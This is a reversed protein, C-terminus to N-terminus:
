NEILIAIKEDKGVLSYTGPQLQISHPEDTPLLHWETVKTATSNYIAIDQEVSVKVTVKQAGNSEKDGCTVYVTAAPYIIPEPEPDQEPQVTTTITVKGGGSAKTYLRMYVFGDEDIVRPEWTSMTAASVTKPNGNLLSVVTLLNSASTNAVNIDCTDAIFVQCQSTKSFQFTIDGNKWTPYHLRFYRKETTNAKITITTDKPPLLITKDKEICPSPSWKLPTLTTEESCWIKIYLYNATTKKWLTELESAYLEYWHGEDSPYFQYSAIAQQPLFEPYTGIYMKFVHDTPTTFKTDTTWTLPIAYTKNLTDSAVVETAKNYTLLTAGGAPPAMPVKEVKLIGSGTSYWKAFFMGAESKNNEADEVYHKLQIRTLKFTDKPQLEKINVMRSDKNLDPDLPDFDCITAVVLTLADTGDWVFRVSDKQWQVYPVIVHRSADNPSVRVTDGLHMFKHGDMCNGFEDPSMTLQGGCSFVVKVYVNVNYDIGQALLMDRYFQAFEVHYRAKGHEDFSLTPVQKYPMSLYASQDICFLGCIFPDSYVGPTCGFDLYLEPAAASVNSPYFDIALPLDFTRAIYWITGGSAPITASYDPTLQIPNACSEGAAFAPTAMILLASMWALICSTKKM